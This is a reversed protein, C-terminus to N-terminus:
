GLRRLKAQEEASLARFMEAFSAEGAARRFFEALYAQTDDDPQRRQSAPAEEAFAMLEAKTSGLGLDFLNPEDEWDADGEEDDDGFDDDEDDEEAGDAIVGRAGLSSIREDGGPSGLEEVLVKLMKLPAPIATWRDPNQRAKSRTMIRDSAPVILEGRVMVGMLRADHLEYLRALATVNQRIDEYGAFNVSNELWKAVVVQLGSEQGAAAPRVDSLFDVVERPSVVALRAFVAVLSQILHAQTASELRAAVAQLLRALYPGLQDSGAKEVVQTALGGVEAAAHDSVAPSLLRDIVVLITELGTRNATDDRWALVAPADHQLTYKLTSTCSKLLEEDTSALLHVTLRSLVAPAFGAPLPSSGHQALTSLLDAALQTSDTPTFRPSPLPFAQM